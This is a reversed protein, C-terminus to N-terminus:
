LGGPLGRSVAAVLARNFAAPDRSGAYAAVGDYFGLQLQPSVLEGHTVSLLVQGTRLAKAAARQYDTLAGLDADSRVPVSGKERSFAAQTGQDALVTLFRLGNRLNTAGQAVVFTDVVSLYSAGTGPFPVAGIHADGDQGEGLGARHLEGYASDNMSLYACQGALLKRAAEDWTLADADSDARDLLTGFTGLAATVRPGGWDFRDAAIASWGDAGGGVQALLVNEFLEVKTFRDKGGLCLPVEGARGVRDLDALFAAVDYDGTPPRVGAKALADRNFWLVNQRHASTPVGYQKGDVTLADLLGRPLHAALDTDAVVGSVDAVRNSSVLSKLSGGLFTQWM